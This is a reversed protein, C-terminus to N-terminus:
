GGGAFRHGFDFVLIDRQDGVFQAGGELRTAQGLEVRREIGLEGGAGPDAHDARQEGGPGGTTYGRREVADVGFDAAQEQAAGADRKCGWM